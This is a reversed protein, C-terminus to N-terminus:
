AYYDDYEPRPTGQVYAGDPGTVEVAKSKGSREDIILRFEVPEGEALSRFGPAYIDSQHVFVDNGEEGELAIFGYGKEVNFWKCNGKKPEGEQMVVPSMASRAVVRLQAAPSILLAHSAAALLCLFFSRM